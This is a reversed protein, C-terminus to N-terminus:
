FLISLMNFLIFIQLRAIKIYFFVTYNGKYFTRSPSSLHNLPSLCMSSKYFVCARGMSDMNPQECNKIVETGPPKQHKQIGIASTIMHILLVIQIIVM